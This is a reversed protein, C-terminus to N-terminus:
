TEPGPRRPPASPTAIWGIAAAVLGAAGLAFSWGFGALDIIMGAVVPGLIQGLDSCMQYVALVQGGSRGRGIVDAVAAQASPAAIGSGIGGVFSVALAYELSGGVIFGALGAASIVLGLIILPRRGIRDSAPGAWLLSLVNGIAAAAVVAGSEVPGASLAQQVFLPVVASRMGYTAWGNSFGFGLLARYDPRAFADRLPMPPQKDVRLRGAVAHSGRRPLAIAVVVAAIVLAAAYALFPLRLGGVAILGGLFPGSISGILFMGAWLSSVRGRLSPPSALIVMSSSAITFMVSGIGGLGRTLLLTVYDGAFATATSSAAVILLGTIYMRREGLRDVLRGALPASVFRMLAFASVVLTTLTAGVGFSHAFQPLVPVVLGFGVAVFLTAVLLIWIPGPIREREPRGEAMAM